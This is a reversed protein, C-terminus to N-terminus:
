NYIRAKLRNKPTTMLARNAPSMARIVSEASKKKTKSPRGTIATGIGGTPTPPRKKGAAAKGGAYPGGPRKATPRKPLRPEYIESRGGKQDMPSGITKALPVNKGDKWSSMKPKVPAVKKTVVKNKPATM